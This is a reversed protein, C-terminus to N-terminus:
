NGEGIHGLYGPRYVRKYGRACANHHRSFQQLQTDCGHLPVMPEDVLSAWLDNSPDSATVVGPWEHEVRFQPKLFRDVVESPFPVAAPAKNSRSICWPSAITM